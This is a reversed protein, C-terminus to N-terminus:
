IVLCKERKLNKKGGKAIRLVTTTKLAKSKLGSFFFCWPSFITPSTGLFIIGSKPSGTWAQLLLGDEFGEKFILVFGEKFFYRLLMTPVNLPSSMIFYHM